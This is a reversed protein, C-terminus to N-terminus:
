WGIDDFEAEAATERAQEVRRAAILDILEGEDMLLVAAVENILSGFEASVEEGASELASEYAADADLERLHRNLDATVPCHPM